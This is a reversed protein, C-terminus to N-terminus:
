KKTSMMMLSEAVATDVPGPTSLDQAESSEKSATEELEAKRKKLPPARVPADTSLSSKGSKKEDGSSTCATNSDDSVERKGTFRHKEDVKEDGDRIPRLCLLLEKVGVEPAQPPDDQNSSTTSSKSKASDLPLDPREEDPHRTRISSTVECWVTTLDDRILCLNCTPALPKRRGAYHLM